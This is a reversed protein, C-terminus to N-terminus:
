GRSESGDVSGHLNTLRRIPKADLPVNLTVSTGSGPATRVEFSGGMARARQEMSSLGHGQGNSSGSFGRGDDDIRLILRRQDTRLMVEVRKSAAHRLINHICEKFILFTQRRVEARVATNDGAEPSTFEFEIDRATLVDGAFRRMRQTLDSLHDRQPNISWVIDSMSGVLERALDAIRALQSESAQESTMKRGIVESLVVIQALSSGIDDHLDTAIRTRVRELELVQRRRFRHFWIAALALAALAATWFWWRMWFPPLVTFEVMAPAPSVLGEDTIARVLFRYFGPSLVEFNVSRVDAPSSWDKQSGELKYQYRITEGIGFNLSAFDVQVQNETPKLRLGAVSREGVASIPRMTGRVHIGTIRIAPPDTPEDNRVPMLRESGFWLAGQRDRYAVTSPRGFRLGAAENLHRVHGSEADLRDIGAATGVYIRGWFDETICKISDSSLGTRTTYTSFRPHVAAPEDVRALGGHSTGIWLRGARDVLLSTAVGPPLGEATTFVDFQGNRYRAVDHWFLSMWVDGSNGEAFATPTGLPRGDRANAFNRISESGRSWLTVVNPGLVSIWVDGRSDEFLAYILDGPLGNRAAIVQDPLRHPLDEM